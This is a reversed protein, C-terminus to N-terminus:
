LPGSSAQPPISSLARQRDRLRGFFLCGGVLLLLGGPPCLWLLVMPLRNAGDNVGVSAGIMWLFCFAMAAATLALVFVTWVTIVAAYFVTSGPSAPKKPPPLADASNVPKVAPQVPRASRYGCPCQLTDWETIWGCKPCRMQPSLNRSGPITAGIWRHCTSSAPERNAPNRISERQLSGM